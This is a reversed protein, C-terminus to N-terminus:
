LLGDALLAVVQLQRATLARTASDGAIGPEPVVEMRAGGTEPADDSMTATSPVPADVEVRRPPLDPRPSATNLRMVYAAFREPFM